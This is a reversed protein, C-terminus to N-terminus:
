ELQEFSELNLVFVTARRQNDEGITTAARIVEMARDVREEETAILLTANGRRLFGGTSAIHTVGFEAEILQDLVRESDESRIIVILLKM